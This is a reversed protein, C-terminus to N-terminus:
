KDEGTSLAHLLDNVVHRNDIYEELQDLKIWEHGCYEDSIKLEPVEGELEALFAIGVCQRDGLMNTWTYLPRVVKGELGTNESITRHAAAQPSEGPNLDTDIFEWSYPDMIRDDVWHRLVLFRDNHRLISKIHVFVNNM